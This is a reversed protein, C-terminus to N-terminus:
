YGAKELGARVLASVTNLKKGDKKNQLADDMLKEAMHRPLTVSMKVMSPPAEKAPQKAQGFPKDALEDALKAAADPNLPRAARQSPPKAAM